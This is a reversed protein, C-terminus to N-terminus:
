RLRIIDEYLDMSRVPGIEGAQESPEAATEETEDQEETQQEPEKKQPVIEDGINIRDFYLDTTITGEAILEDTATVTFTGLSESDEHELAIKDGSLHVTGNKLITLKDDKEIGDYTGINVLGIDFRRDVLRGRIPLDQYYNEAVKKFTEKVKDNGTRYVTYTQIKNGTHASYVDCRCSFSRTGEQIDLMLFYHVDAERAHSFARAFSSARRPPETVHITEYQQMLYRFYAALFTEARYHELPGNKVTYFVLTRYRFRELPIPRRGDSTGDRSEKLTPPFQRINWQSAVSDERLSSYIEYEDQIDTTEYGIDDILLKLQSLYRAPQDLKDLMQAYSYRATEAFPFLHLGRRYEQLAKRFFNRDEYTAARDFHYEGAQKREESKLEYEQLLMHEMALRSIEDDTRLHFARSYSNMSNEYEGIKSYSFGLIYWLLHNERDKNLVKKVLPVVKEYEGQHLYIKSLLLTADVYDERLSLATKVKLLAQEYDEFHFYHKAAIYHVEPDYSFTYLARNIFEEAATRNDRSDYLLTLSLLARRNDPAYRLAERLKSAAFGTKGQVIHLEALGFQAELNHPEAELVEAFKNEADDYRGLAILIRGHLNKIEISAQDYPAARTIWKLAEEYEGLSFYTESLAVMPEVFRPSHQLATRYLEIARYYQEQTQADRGQQYLERPTPNDQGALPVLVLFFFLLVPIGTIRNM